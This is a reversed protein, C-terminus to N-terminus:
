MNSLYHNYNDRCDVIADRTHPITGLHSQRPFMPSSPAVMTSSYAQNSWAPSSGGKQLKRTKKQKRGRGRKGRTIKKGKASKKNKSSGKRHQKMKQKHRNVRETHMRQINDLDKKMNEFVKPSVLTKSLKKVNEFKDIMDKKNQNISKIDRSTLAYCEFCFAETYKQLFKRKKEKNNIMSVYNNYVNIAGPCIVSWFRQVQEFKKISKIDNCISINSCMNKAGGKLVPAEVISTNLNTDAVKGGCENTREVAIFPGGGATGLPLSDDPNFGFPRHGGKQGELRTHVENFDSNKTPISPYGAIQGTKSATIEEVNEPRGVDRTMRTYSQIPQRWYNNM